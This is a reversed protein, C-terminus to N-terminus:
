AKKAFRFHQVGDVVGKSLNINMMASLDTLMQENDALSVPSNADSLTLTLGLEIVVQQLVGQFRHSYVIM